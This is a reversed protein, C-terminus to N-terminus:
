GDVAAHDGDLRVVALVAVDNGAWAGQSNHCSAQQIIGTISENDDRIRAIQLLELINTIKYHSGAIKKLEKKAVKQLCM